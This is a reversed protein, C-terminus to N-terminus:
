AARRIQPGLCAVGGIRRAVENRNSRACLASTGEKGGKGARSGAGRRDPLEGCGPGGRLEHGARCDIRAGGPALATTGIRPGLARLKLGLDAAIRPHFAHLLHAVGSTRFGPAFERTIAAGGPRDAAELVIVKLGAKALYTATVLGNHGAGIVIADAARMALRGSDGPASVQPASM